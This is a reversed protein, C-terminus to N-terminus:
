GAFIIHEWLDSYCCLHCGHFFLCYLRWKSKRSTVVCSYCHRTTLTTQLATLWSPYGHGRGTEGMTLPPECPAELHSLQPKFWLRTECGDCTARSSCWVVQAPSHQIQTFCVSRYQERNFTLVGKGYTLRQPNVSFHKLDRRIINLCCQLLSYIAGSRSCWCKFMKFYTENVDRWILGWCFFCPHLM